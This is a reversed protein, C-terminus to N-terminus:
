GRFSSPRSKKEELWEKYFPMFTANDRIVCGTPKHARILDGCKGCTLCVRKSDIRGKTVIENAFDPDAFAMRGFLFGDAMGKEVAGAAYLDAYERLYTPASGYVVMESVTKKIAEVGHVMRSLGEFPHEDPPYKGSDFPRTVHTTAYPNGMTIDVLPISFENWLEKILRKPETLDMEGEENQGWGRNEKPYGDYIGIRATVFFDDSEYVQADRISNKLLRTRNEYSGGYEGPRNYAAAVEQFLYGHCCKIDVADFGAKKALLASEGFLDEMRKLYADSVICSDDASRLSELWSSSEAIM